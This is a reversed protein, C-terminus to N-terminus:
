ISLQVCLFLAFLFVECNRVRQFILNNQVKFYKVTLRWWLKPAQRSFFSTTVGNQAPSYLRVQLAASSPDGEPFLPMVIYVVFRKGEAIKRCIAKAIEYPIMTRAKYHADDLWLHSSGLFYQNEIYIFRQARRIHHVYGRQISDETRRGKLSYLFSNDEKSFKASDSNITRLM